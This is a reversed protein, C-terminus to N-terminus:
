RQTEREQREAETVLPKKEYVYNDETFDDRTLELGTWEKILDLAAAWNRLMATKDKEGEQRVCLIVFSNNCKRNMFVKLDDKIYKTTLM